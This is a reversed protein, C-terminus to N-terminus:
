CLIFPNFYYQALSIRSSKFTNNAHDLDMKTLLGDSSGTLNRAEIAEYRHYKSSTVLTFGANRFLDQNPVLVHEVPVRSSFPLEKTCM